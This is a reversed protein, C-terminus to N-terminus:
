DMYKEWDVVIGRGISDAVWRMFAIGVYGDKDHLTKYAMQVCQTADTLISPYFDSYYMNAIYTADGWTALCADEQGSTPLSLGLSNFASKVEEVSWCHDTGDANKLGKSVHEALSDTFHEGYKETYEYFGKDMFREANNGYVDDAFFTPVHKPEGGKLVYYRKRM